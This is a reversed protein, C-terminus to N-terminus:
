KAIPKDLVKQCEARVRDLGEAVGVEQVMIAAINQNFADELEKGRLNAATYNPGVEDMVSAWEAYVPFEKLIETSHWVSVMGVPGGLAQLCRDLSFKRSCTWKVFEWAGEPHVAASAVSMMHQNLLSGRGAPGPPIMTGQAKFDTILKPWNTTNIPWAAAMAVQGGQFMKNIGGEIDAPSPHIEDAYVFDYQQQMAAMAKEDDLVCKTGEANLLDGGFSRIHTVWRFYGTENGFGWMGTKEKIAKGANILDEMTSDWGIPEVGAQEFLDLNLVLGINGPESIHPLAMLAGEYTAEDICYGYYQGIDFSEAEVFPNHDAMIGIAMFRRNFGARSASWVVDGMQGGAHLVLVKAAFELAGGPVVELKVTANPEVTKFEDLVQEIYENLDRGARINVRLEYPEAVKQPAEKEVVKEVVRTVEKEVEVAEKVVVTQEVLKEVEKEVVVTEKVVKPACAALTTAGVVLSGKRLLDRRSLKKM